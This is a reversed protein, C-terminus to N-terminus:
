RQPRCHQAGRAVTSPQQAHEPRAPQDATALPRTGNNRNSREAAASCGIGSWPQEGKLHQVLAHLNPATRIALGEILSAEHANEPPVVLARAKQQHAKEALAIVGRCPRLSGDLGLEGAVLPGGASPPRALDVEVVVPRAELGQLSASLCRALM